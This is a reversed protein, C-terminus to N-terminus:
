NFKILAYGWSAHAPDPHPVHAFVEGNVDVGRWIANVRSGIEPLRDLPQLHGIVDASVTIPKRTEDQGAM